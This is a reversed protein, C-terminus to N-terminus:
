GAQMARRADEITAYHKVHSITTTRDYTGSILLMRGAFHEDIRTVGFGGEDYRGFTYTAKGSSAPKAIVNPVCELRLPRSTAPDYTLTGKIHREDNIASKFEITEAGPPCDSCAKPAGFTYDGASEPYYPMAFRTSVRPPSDAYRKDIAAQSKALEEASDTKGDHVSRVLRIAITKRDQHLVSLEQESQENHGPAKQAATVTQRSITIGGNDAVFRQVLKEVAPPLATGGPEAAGAGASLAVACTATFAVSMRSFHM